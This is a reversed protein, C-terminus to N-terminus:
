FFFRAPIYFTIAYQLAKLAILMVIPSFDISGTGPIFRRGFRLTPESLTRLTDIATNHIGKAVFSIISYFLISYFVLTIAQMLFDAPILLLLQFTSLFVKSQLYVLFIYKFLDLAVWVSLTSLDIFRTRPIFQRLPTIIPNTWKAILQCFANNSSARFLQFLIRLM